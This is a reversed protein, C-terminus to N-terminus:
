KVKGTSSGRGNWFLYQQAYGAYAGWRDEVFEHLKGIRQKRGKFYVHELIRKMWVDIPCAETKGYGMLAICDAVKDGVGSIEMLNEKIEKYPKPRLSYLDMNHTCFEAAEKLYKDRFGTGCSLIEARSARALAASTPFSRAIVNDMDDKIPAGFRNIINKAIMRIRKVNNFQSIMFCLLTEWPDNQTM